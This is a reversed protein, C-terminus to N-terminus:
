AVYHARGGGVGGAHQHHRPAHKRSFLATLSALPSRRRPYAGGAGGVPVAVGAGHHHRRSSFLGRRRRPAGTTVGAAGRARGTFLRKARRGEREVAAVPNAAAGTTHTHRTRRPALMRKLRTMPSPGAHYGAPPAVPRRNFLPM